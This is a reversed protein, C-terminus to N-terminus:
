PKLRSERIVLSTLMKAHVQHGDTYKRQLCTQTKQEKKKKVANNTKKTKLQLLERYIRFELYLKCIYEGM